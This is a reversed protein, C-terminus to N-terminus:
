EGGYRCEVANQAYINAKHQILLRVIEAQGSSCAVHLPTSRKEDLVDPNMGSQLLAEMVDVNGEWAAM